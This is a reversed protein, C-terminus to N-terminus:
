QDEPVLGEWQGDGLGADNDTLSTTAAFEGLSILKREFLFPNKYEKKM